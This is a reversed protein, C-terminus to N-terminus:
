TNFKHGAKQLADLAADLTGEKVPVPGLVTLAIRSIMGAASICGVTGCAGDLNDMLNFANVLGVVWLVTLVVEAATREHLLAYLLHELTVYEHRRKVAEMAAFNLTEQLEKTIM